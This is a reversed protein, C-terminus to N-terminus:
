TFCQPISCLISILIALLLTGEHGFVGPFLGPISKEKSFTLDTHCIGTARIKILVEDDRLNDEVQVPQLKFPAGPSAVVLAESIM